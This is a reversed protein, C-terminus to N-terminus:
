RTSAASTPWPSAAGNSRGRTPSPGDDTSSGDVFMPPVADGLDAELSAWDVGDPASTQQPPEPVAEAPASPTAPAGLAAAMLARAQASEPDAALAVALHAVAEPGRGARVLLDALHLRLTLDDPAAVVAASLSTILADDM